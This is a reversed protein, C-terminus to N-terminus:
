PVPIRLSAIRGIMIFLLVSGLALLALGPIVRFTRVLFSWPQISNSLDEVVRRLLHVGLGTVAVGSALACVTAVLWVIEYGIM